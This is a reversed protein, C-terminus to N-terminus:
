SASEAKQRMPLSSVYMLVGSCGITLNCKATRGPNKTALVWRKCDPCYLVTCLPTTRVYQVVHAYDDILRQQDLTLQVRSHTEPSDVLQAWSSCGTAKLVLIGIHAARPVDPFETNERFLKPKAM